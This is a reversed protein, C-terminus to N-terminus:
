EEDNVGERIFTYDEEIRDMIQEYRLILPGLEEKLIQLIQYRNENMKKSVKTALVYETIVRSIYQNTTYKENKSNMRKIQSLMEDTLDIKIYTKM